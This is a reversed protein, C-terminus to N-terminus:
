GLGLKVKGIGHEQDVQVQLKAIAGSDLSSHSVKLVRNEDFGFVFETPKTALKDALQNVVKNKRQNEEIVAAHGAHLDHQKHADCPTFTEPTHVRTDESSDREWSYSLECGCTDPRWTTIVRDTGVIYAM